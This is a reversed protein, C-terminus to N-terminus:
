GRSGADAVVDGGITIACRLGAPLWDFAVAGALQCRATAEILSLGFGRQAPPGPVAPGGREVWLLQLTRAGQQLTWTVDLSGERRALAGHRAANAALEHIVLTFPQVARARLRVAPGTLAIAAAAGQAALEGEILRRLEVEQWRHDALLTHIRALAGVREEVGRAFQEPDDRRTLRVLSQVVALANRARHNVERAMLEQRAEAARRETVDRVVALVALRGDLVVAASNAEVEVTTGDLRRVTLPAPANRQGPTRLFSTRAQALPLSAPDILDLARLGVLREASEAGFLHAAQRNALIIVGDRHVHVADPALEVLTRYREESESMAREALRRDTVDLLTGVARQPRGATDFYVRGSTAVWRERGDSARRIRFEAAYRGDDPNAYAARYREVVWARDEPHILSAFLEPDPSVAPTLGLIARFEPSWRRAGRVLDVDWIGLGTSSVALALREQGGQFRLLASRALSGVGVVFGGTTLLLALNLAAMSVGLSSTAPADVLNWTGAVGLGLAALGPGAGGILAAAAIAPFVTAFPALGAGVGQLLMRAAVGAGALALAIGYALVRRRQAYRVLAASRAVLRVSNGFM